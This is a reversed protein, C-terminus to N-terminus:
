EKKAVIIVSLGFPFSFYRICFSEIYFFNYFISNLIAPIPSVDSSKSDSKLLFRKIIILPFLFFNAYSAKLISFHSNKIISILEKKTYRHKTHVQKDHYSYLWNYSPVRILLIGGPKLVRYFENIAKSDNKVAKHYLVDFNTVLDFTSNKYPLKSVSGTIVNKLGRKKCFEIAVKSLDIGYATGFVSLLPFSGGTGCGADLIKNKSNKRLYLQLLVKTIKRMGKYWFHTDETEYMASYEKIEM